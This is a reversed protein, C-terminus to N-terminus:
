SVKPLAKGLKDVLALFRDIDDSTMKDVFFVPEKHRNFDDV